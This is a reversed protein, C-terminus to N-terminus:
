RTLAVADDIWSQPWDAKNFYDLKRSPHLVIAMRYIYSDDLLKLVSVLDQIAEWEEDELIYALLENSSSDVFKIVHEKMRLFAALMDYTSNWRTAVDRPLVQDEFETDLVQERWRPLLKTTSHIIAFSIKRTKLLASKVPTVERQWEEREEATMEDLVGVFG